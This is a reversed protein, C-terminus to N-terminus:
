NLPKLGLLVKVEDMTETVAHNEGSLVLVANARSHETVRPHRVVEIWVKAILLDNGDPDHVEIFEAM